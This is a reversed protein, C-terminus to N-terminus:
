NNQKLTLTYQVAPFTQYQLLNNVETLRTKKKNKKKCVKLFPEFEPTKEKFYKLASLCSRYNNCYKKYYSNFGSSAQNLSLFLPSWFWLVALIKPPKTVVQIFLDGINAHSLSFENQADFSRFHDSPWATYHPFLASASLLQIDWSFPNTQNLSTGQLSVNRFFGWFSRM